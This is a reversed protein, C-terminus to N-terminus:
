YSVKIPMHRFFIMHQYQMDKLDVGTFTVRLTVYLLFIHLDVKRGCGEGHVRELFM